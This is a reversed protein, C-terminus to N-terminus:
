DRPAAARANGVQSPRRALSRFSRDEDNGGQRTRTAPVMIRPRLLLHAFPCIPLSGPRPRAIQCYPLSGSAFAAGGNDDTSDIRAYDLAYLGPILVLCGM